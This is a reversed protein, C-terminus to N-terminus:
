RSRGGQTHTIDRMAKVLKSYDEAFQGTIKTLAGAFENMVKNLQHDLADNLAKVQKEVAEGTQSLAQEASQSMGTLIRSNESVQQEALNQISKSLQQRMEDLGSEFGSRMTEIEQILGASAAQFNTQIEKGGDQLEAILNRLNSTADSLFDDMLQRSNENNTAVLDSTGQLSENVRTANTVLDEGTDVIAKMMEDASNKVGDSLQESAAKLGDAFSENARTTNTVIDEGSAAIAKMMEDASNKVGESLQESATKMGDVTADIHTTIEPLAEVAKDRIDKFAELHQELENLQHQNVEMVSKLAEMSTPIVKSEESIHTVATETQTIAQVGQAYQEAMQNLQVKYNEQWQVLELVAANLQKFNEGFQETLNNNFDAIVEKLANVVQETASRSMMDAFDQLKIWLKDQFQSFVDKQEKAVAEIASSSSAIPELTQQVEKHRDSQDSRMLKIQGVLSNDGDGGIATRLADIGQVQERMSTYLEAIGIQDEDVSDTSTPSIWGAAALMKYAVSFFMGALSTTFATKLGGLLLEISGDIDTIDFHLLGAIVGAFTGLIGLTTLLTPAYQTFGHARNFKKLVIAVVFICVLCVLVIDTLNSAGTALLFGEIPQSLM